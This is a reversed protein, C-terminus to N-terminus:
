GSSLDHKTKLHGTGKFHGTEGGGVMQLQTRTERCFALYGTPFGMQLQSGIARLFALYGKPFGM